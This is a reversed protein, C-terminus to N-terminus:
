LTSFLVITGVIGVVGGHYKGLPEGVELFLHEGVLVFFKHRPEDKIESAIRIVLATSTGDEEWGMFLLDDFSGEILTSYGNLHLEVFVDFGDIPFLLWGCKFCM